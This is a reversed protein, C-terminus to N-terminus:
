NNNTIGQGEDFRWHGVASGVPSGVAPHGANMDEVIQKATRAYNYIKFEDTTGVLDAYTASEDSGVRWNTAADNVTATLASTGKQIGNVFIRLTVKDYTCSVFSWSNLSLAATDAAATQWTTGNHVACSAYGSADTYLRIENNKIALAKSTVSTTPYVWLSVTFQSSLESAFAPSAAFFLWILVIIISKVKKNM